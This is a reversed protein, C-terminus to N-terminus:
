LGGLVKRLLLEAFFLGIILFLYAPLDLLKSTEKTQKLIPNALAKPLISALSNIRSLPLFRGGTTSSFQRLLAFDAGIANNEDQTPVIQFTGKESYSQGALSATASYSYQGVALGQVSYEPNDKFYTFSSIAPKAGAKAISFQISGGDTLQGAADLLKTFFVVPAGAPVISQNPRVQFPKSLEDARLYLITQKILYDFNTATGQNAMAEAIRWKWIGEGATEVQKKTGIQGFLWLPKGNSTTGIQQSFLATAREDTTYNGYPVSLAPLNQFAFKAVPALNFLGFDPNLKGKAEDAQQGSYGAIRLLTSGSPLSAFATSPTHIYWVSAPALQQLKFNPFNSAPLGHLIAIDPPTSPPTYNFAYQSTVELNDLLALSAKIAKIDPHPGASLLLIKTKKNYIKIEKAATNNALYSEKSDPRLRAKITLTGEKGSQINFQISRKSSTAPFSLTTKYVIKGDNEVALETPRAALAQSSVVIRVPIQTESPELNNAIIAQISHDAKNTTDGLGITFVPLKGVQASVLNGRNQRGDSVLVLARLSSIDSASIAQSTLAELNSFPHRYTSDPSFSQQQVAFGAAELGSKLSDVQLRLKTTDAKLDQAISASNDIAIAITPKEQSFSYRAIKLNSALMVVLAAMIGRLISM